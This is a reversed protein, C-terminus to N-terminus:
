LFLNILRKHKKRAYEVAIKTGSNTRRRPTYRVNYYAIVIDSRDIMVQNRKVYSLAGAGHVQPPYFSDEYMTMLYASYQEDISEYEARVYVRRIHGYKKQLATVVEYCLDNFASKSGFLFTDAGEHILSEVTQTLRERLGDTDEVDRHGICTVTM